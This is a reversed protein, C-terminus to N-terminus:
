ICVFVLGEDVNFKGEHEYGQGPNADIFAQACDYTNFFAENTGNSVKFAKVTTLNLNTEDSFNETQTTFASLTGFLVTALFFKKM